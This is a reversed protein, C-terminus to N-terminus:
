GPAPVADRVPGQAANKRPLVLVVLTGGGAVSQPELSGGHMQALKQAMSHGVFPRDGAHEEAMPRDFIDTFREESDLGEDRVSVSVAQPDWGVAAAARRFVTCTIRTTSDHGSLGDVSREDFRARPEYQAQVTVPAAYDPTLPGERALEDVREAPAQQLPEVVLTGPTILFGGM